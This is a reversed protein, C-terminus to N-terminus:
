ILTRWERLAIRGAQFGRFTDLDKDILRKIIRERWHSMFQFKAQLDNLYLMSVGTQMAVQTFDTLTMGVEDSISLSQTDNDYGKAERIALNLAKSRYESKFDRAQHVRLLYLM